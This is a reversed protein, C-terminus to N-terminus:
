YPRWILVGFLLPLLIFGLRVVATVPFWDTVEGDVKAGCESGEYTSKMNNVIKESIDYIKSESHEM